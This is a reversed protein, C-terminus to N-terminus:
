KEEYFKIWDLIMDCPFQTATTPSGPWSGGMAINLLVYWSDSPSRNEMVITPKGDLDFLLQESTITIGYTHFDTISLPALNEILRTDVPYGLSAPNNNENVWHQTSYYTFMNADSRIPWEMMDIEPPWSGDSPMLWFAPWAGRSTIPDLPMALRCEVRGGIPITRLRRSTIMAATYLWNRNSYSITQTLKESRLRRKDDVIPFPNTSPYLVPDAYLGLEKNGDQTRGHAPRSQWCPSVGDALFGTDSFDFNNIFDTEYVLTFGSQVIEQPNTSFSVFANSKALFAGAPNKLYVEITNGVVNNGKLPLVIEAETRGDPQFIITGSIALYNTNQNAGVGNRSQYSVIVTDRPKNSLSLKLRAETANPLVTVDSITIGIPAVSDQLFAAFRPNIELLRKADTSALRAM